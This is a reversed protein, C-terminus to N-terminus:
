NILEILTSEFGYGKEKNQKLEVERKTEARILMNLPKSYEYENWENMKYSSNKMFGEFDNGESNNTQKVLNIVFNKADEENITSRVELIVNNSNSKSEKLNVINNTRISGGGFPNQREEEFEIKEEITFEGGLSNHILQLEKTGLAEVNEKVSFIQNMSTKFSEMSSKIKPNEKVALDVIMETLNKLKDGLEKWNVVELFEGDLGAKYIVDTILRENLDKSINEPINFESFDFKYSWKLKYYDPTIDIIHLQASYSHSNDKTTKEDQTFKKTKTIKFNYDEGKEWKPFFYVTESENQANLTSFTLYIFIVLLKIKM